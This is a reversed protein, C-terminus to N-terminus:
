DRRKLRVEIRIPTGAFPETARIQNELYRVYSSGLRGTAFLLFKPPAVSAQVAYLVRISRGQTRPHPRRSQAEQVMRNVAATPLRRRHSDIAGRVAPFIRDVGRGTLASTRLVTAWSLFRLSDEIHHELRARDPGEASVLDWKNLCVVCARGTAVIEEAIRQDLGTIGESMDAVLLVGDVRELTKRSRLFSFYELPDQIHVRRRLGATDLIRLLGAGNLAIYSDVPDRTTGPEPDVIARAEGVLANLLSSKGVNPRGVIAITAWEASVSVAADPLASVIADLLDGSRRGHLASVPVPEGLGLRYYAAALSESQSDDVKNAAVIVPVKSRRLIDAVELDDQFPGSVVDVVLVIVDASAIAVQAQESVRADLGRAGPELGGTDLVEFTRGGWEAVFGRRDRTVGPTEEVIAERRGLIRNVLSSKGVNPRGVVAVVPLGATVPAVPVTM